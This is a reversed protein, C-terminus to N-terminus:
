THRSACHKDDPAGLEERLKHLATALTRSVQPQSLGLELAIRQQSWDRYYRLVIVRRERRSLSRIGAYLLLREETRELEAGAASDGFASDDLPVVVPTPGAGEAGRPRRVPWSREGVSRRLEGVITPVAYAGLDGGREAAFGDVAKILGIVGVQVLDDVQDPRRSFRRVIAHVLPLNQEIVRERAARDGDRRYARLLVANSMTTATRSTVSVVGLTAGGRSAVRASDM